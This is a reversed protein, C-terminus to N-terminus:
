RCCTSLLITHSITRTEIREARALNPQTATLNIGESVNNSFKTIGGKPHQYVIVCTRHYTLQQQQQLCQYLIDHAPLEGDSDRGDEVALLQALPALLAVPKKLGSRTLHHVVAHSPRNQRLPITYLRM